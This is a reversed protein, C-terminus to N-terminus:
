EKGEVKMKEFQAIFTDIQDANNEVNEDKDDLVLDNLLDELRIQNLEEQTKGTLKEM